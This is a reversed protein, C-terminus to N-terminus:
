CVISADDMNLPPKYLSNEPLSVFEAFAGPITIGVHLKKTCWSDYGSFCNYCSDCSAHGTTCVIDGIKYKKVGEGVDVVEASMEHGLLQVPAQKEIIKKMEDIGMTAIGIARQADTISPQVRRVKCLVWGPKVEPIPIEDLRMDGFGYFRWAKM